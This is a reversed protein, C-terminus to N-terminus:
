GRALARDLRDFADDDAPVGIRLWRPAYDFPRTLIGANALREFMATADTDIILRFLPCDGTAAMGHRALMADLRTARAAISRRARVLWDTDRYAALGYAIAHASVPWSGLRRRMAAIREPPAIMFGLRLGALGYMKGFSRFVIVRDDPGVHPVISADPVVDAFAEDVVLWAGRRAIGRLRDPRDLHGDPNNPNALLLTGDEIADIATRAIPIAGTLAEAHTGYSPAVFRAPSPLALADLSRLGIESGPLAMVREARTGFAAAAAAELDSLAAPSPLATPDVAFSAPPAWSHPNVGTSLDIWPRPAEPYRTAALDIRGGHIRLATM